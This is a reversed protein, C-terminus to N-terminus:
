SVRAVSGSGDLSVRRPEMIGKEGVTRFVICALGAVGEGTDEEAGHAAQPVSDWMMRGRPGLVLCLHLRYVPSLRHEHIFPVEDKPM